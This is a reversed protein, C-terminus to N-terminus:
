TDEPFLEEAFEDLKLVKFRGAHKPDRALNWYEMSISKGWAAIEVKWGANLARNIMTLFGGSYEAVAADGTAVVMTPMEAGPQANGANGAVGGSPSDLISELMKLHLIEDVGQEVLKKGTAPLASNGDSGGDSAGGARAAFAKQRETPERVKKVREYYNVEYGVAKAEDYAAVWPNSCAMVRRAVPRRRELFLALSNFCPYIREVLYNKPIRRVLKLHEMFGILINSADVFVHVGAPEPATKILQLPKLLYKQDEPFKQMLKLLLNWNRDLAGFAPNLPTLKQIIRGRRPPTAMAPPAAPLVPLPNFTHRQVIEELNPRKAPKSIMRQLEAVPDVVPWGESVPQSTAAFENTPTSFAPISDTIERKVAKGKDITGAAPLETTSSTAKNAQPPPQSNAASMASRRAAAAMSEATITYKPHDLIKGNDVFRALGSIEQKFQAKALKKRGQSPQKNRTSPGSSEVAAQGQITAHAEQSNVSKSSVHSTKPQVVSVPEADSKSLSHPTEPQVVNVPQAESEASQSNRLEAEVKAEEAERAAKRERRERRKQSVTRKQEGQVTPSVPSTPGEDQTQAEVLNRGEEVEDAWRVNRSSSPYYAAGDSAYDQKDSKSALSAEFPPVTPPPVNHKLGLEGFVSRFDGLSMAKEYEHLPEGSPENNGSNADHSTTPADPTLKPPTGTNASTSLRALLDHVPELRGISSSTTTSM